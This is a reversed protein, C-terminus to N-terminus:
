IESFEDYKVEHHLCHLNSLYIYKKFYMERRIGETGNIFFVRFM